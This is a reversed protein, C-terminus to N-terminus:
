RTACIPWCSWTSRRMSWGRSPCRDPRGTRPRINKPSTSESCSKSSPASVSALFDSCARPLNPTSSIHRISADALASNLESFDGVAPPDFLFTGADRRHIQILYARQSYTFGSAREADIGIPGHGRELLAVADLYEERTSIVHHALHDTTQETM